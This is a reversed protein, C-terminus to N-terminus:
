KPRRLKLEDIHIQLVEWNVGITADHHRAVSELVDICQDYTLSDDLSQVDAVDWISYLVGNNVYAM